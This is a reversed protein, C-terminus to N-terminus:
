VGASMWIRAAPVPAAGPRVVPCCPRCPSAWGTSSTSTAPPRTVQV